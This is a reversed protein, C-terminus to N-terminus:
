DNKINKTWENELYYYEFIKQENKNDYSKVLLPIWKFTSEDYSYVIQFSNQPISNLQIPIIDVLYEIKEIAMEFNRKSLNNMSFIISIDKNQELGDFYIILSASKRNRRRKIEKLISKLSYWREFTFTQFFNEGFLYPFEINILTTYLNDLENQNGVYASLDNYSIQEEEVYSVNILMSYITEIEGLSLGYHRFSISRFSM